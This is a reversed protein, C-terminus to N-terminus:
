DFTYLDVVLSHLHYGGCLIFFSWWFAYLNVVSHLSQGGCLILGSPTLILLLTYLSVVVFFLGGSLMFILLLTYLNVVM